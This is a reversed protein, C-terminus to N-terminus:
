TWASGSSWLKVWCSGSFSQGLLARIPAIIHLVIQLSPPHWSLFPLHSYYSITTKAERDEEMRCISTYQIVFFLRSNWIESSSALQGVSHPVSPSRKLLSLLPLDSVVLQQRQLLKNLQARIYKTNNEESGLHQFVLRLAIYYNPKRMYIPM